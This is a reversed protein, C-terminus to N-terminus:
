RHMILAFRNACTSAMGILYVGTVPAALASCLWILKATAWLLADVDDGYVHLMGLAGAMSLCACGLTLLRTLVPHSAAERAHHPSWGATAGGSAFMDMVIMDSAAQCYTSAAACLLLLVFTIVVVGVHTFLVSTWQEVVTATFDRLTSQACLKPYLLVIAAVFAASAIAALVYAVFLSARAKCPTKTRAYQTYMSQNCTLVNLSLVFMGVSVALIDRNVDTSVKYFFNVNINVMRGALEHVDLQTWFYDLGPTRLHYVLAAALPLAAIVLLLPFAFTLASTGGDAPQLLIPVLAVVTVCVVCQWGNLTTQISMLVQALM